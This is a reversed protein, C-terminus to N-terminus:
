EPTNKTDDTESSPQTKWRRHLWLWQDPYQRVHSEIRSTFAQTIRLIDAEEDGTSEPWIPEGCDVRYRFRKGQRVCFGMCIPLGSRLALVAISRVTAASHGFFDVFVHDTRANQDAVFVLLGGQKVVRMMARLARNKPVIKQGYRERYAVLLKDLLPNDLTRAITTMAYGRASAYMGLVEWNGLHATVVLGGGKSTMAEDIAASDSFEVYKDITEKTILQAAKVSEPVVMAFHQFVRRVLRRKESGTMEDGYAQDLNGMAVRRHRADLLWGLTGVAKALARAVEIPLIRFMAILAM